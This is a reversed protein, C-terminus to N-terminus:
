GADLPALGAKRLLADLRAREAPGPRDGEPLLTARLMRELREVLEARENPDLGALAGVVRRLRKHLRPAVVVEVDDTARISVGPGVWSAISDDDTRRRESATM